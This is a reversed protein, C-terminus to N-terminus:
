WSNVSKVGPPAPLDGVWPLDGIHAERVTGPCASGATVTVPLWLQQQSAPTWGPLMVRGIYGPITHGGHYRTHYMSTDGGGGYRAKCCRSSPVELHRGIPLVALVRMRQAHGLPPRYYAGRQSGGTCLASLVRRTTFRLYLLYGITRAENHLSSLLVGLMGGQCMPLTICM